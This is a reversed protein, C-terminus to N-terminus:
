ILRLVRWRRRLLPRGPRWRAIVAASVAAGGIVMMDRSDYPVRRPPVHPAVAEAAGTM